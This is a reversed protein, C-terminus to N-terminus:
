CSRKLHIASDCGGNSKRAMHLSRNQNREINMVNPLKSEEEGCPQQNKKSEHLLIRVRIHMGTKKGVDNM